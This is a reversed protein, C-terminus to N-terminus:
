LGAQGLRGLGIAHRDVLQLFDQQLVVGDIAQVRECFRADGDRGTCYTSRPLNPPLDTAISVSTGYIMVTTQCSHHLTAAPLLAQIPRFGALRM